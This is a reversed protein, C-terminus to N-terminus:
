GIASSKNKINQTTDNYGHPFTIGITKIWHDGRQRQFPTSLSRNNKKYFETTSCLHFFIPFLFIQLPLQISDNNM